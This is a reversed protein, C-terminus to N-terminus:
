GGCSMDGTAWRRANRAYAARTRPHKAYVTVKTKGPESEQVDVVQTIQTGVGSAGLTIRGQRMDPYHQTDNIQQGLPLMQLPACERTGAAINRLAEQYGMELEFTEANEPQALKGPTSACGALVIIAVVMLRNM